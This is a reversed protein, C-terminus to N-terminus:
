RILTVTGVLTHEKNFIDTLYAKYIYVDQQCYDGRYTGDWGVNMDNSTFLRLGWRDFIHLKFDIINHGYIYFVDNM